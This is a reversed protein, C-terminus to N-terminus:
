FEYFIATIGYNLLCCLDHIVSYRINGCGLVTGPTM